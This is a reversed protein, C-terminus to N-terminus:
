RRIWNRILKAIRPTQEPDFWRIEKNRKWYTIQSKAYRRIDRSLGEVMQERTIKDHLLHTLARYELGLQLMRKFSLGKRHLRKAEAVM